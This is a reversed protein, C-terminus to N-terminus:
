DNSNYSSKYVKNYLFHEQPVLTMLSDYLLRHRRSGITEFKPNWVARTFVQTNPITLDIFKSTEGPAYLAQTQRTVYNVFHIIKCYEDSNSKIIKETIFTNPLSDSKIYHLNGSDDLRYGEITKSKANFDGWTVEIGRNFENICSPPVSKCSQFFIAMSFVLAFYIKKNM